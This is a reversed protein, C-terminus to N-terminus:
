LIVLRARWTSEAAYFPSRRTRGMAALAQGRAGLGAVQYKVRGSASSQALVADTRGLAEEWARSALALEARAQAFRLKWLWGHAGAAV